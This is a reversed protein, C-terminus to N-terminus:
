FHLIKQGERFLNRNSRTGSRIRRGDAACYANLKLGSTSARPVPEERTSPTGSLDAPAM